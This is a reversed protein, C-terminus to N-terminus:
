RPEAPGEPCEIVIRFGVDPTVRDRKMPEDRNITQGLEPTSLFSGGRVMFELDSPDDDRPPFAPDVVPTRSDLRYPQARDRCWERVNGTLDYVGQATRDGDSYSGVEDTRPKLRDINGPADPPPRRTFEWVRLIALGRSRAAFEWQAETPLRGGKDTAYVWAVRFPIGEAPHKRAEDPGVGGEKESVSLKRFQKRWMEAGGANDAGEFYMEMEANTVETTQM